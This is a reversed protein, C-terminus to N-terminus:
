RGIRQRRHVLQQEAGTASGDGAGFPRSRELRDTVVIPRARTQPFGRHTMGLSRSVCRPPPKPAPISVSLSAARAGMTPAPLPRPRRSLAGPRRRGLPALWVQKGTNGVKRGDSRGGPGLKGPIMAGRAPAQRLGSLLEKESAEGMLRRRAGTDGTNGGGAVVRQGREPQSLSFAQGMPPTTISVNREWALAM